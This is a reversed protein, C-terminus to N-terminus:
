PQIDFEITWTQASNYDNPDAYAIRTVHFRAYTSGEGGRLLSANGPNAKLLHAVAPLGAAAAATASPYYTYWGFNMPNPYTGTYAPNLRSATGDKVWKTQDTPLALDAASLDSQTAALNSADTFRAAVPKGSGDYFGAPTKALFGAVKGSGSEGGNLKINYRNFAIHWNGSATTVAGASLDYYVWDAAANVTATRVTAPASRDVWRFSPNGSTTGGAGGYYGTVQLAFVPAAATGVPDAKSSDATILITRYNPYLLHDSSGGVGYEFVASGIDNTGAFVGSAADKFFLTAPITGSVPDTTANKWALLEAWGHDFPGGFAGGAGSGSSGSNTWLTASRNASKVKLDWASGTCGAVEAKANFDYCVASGSAPLTFTWTASQTFGNTAASGGSQGSGGSAGGIASGGGDAGDGGGGCAALVLALMSVGLASTFGKKGEM